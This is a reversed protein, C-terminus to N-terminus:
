INTTTYSKQTEPHNVPERTEQKYGEFQTHRLWIQMADDVQTPGYAEKSM